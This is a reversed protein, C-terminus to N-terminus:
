APLQTDAPMWAHCPMPETHSVSIQQLPVNKCAILCCSVALQDSHPAAYLHQGVLSGHACVGLSSPCVEHALRRAQISYVVFGTGFAVAAYPLAQQVPPPLQLYIERSTQKVSKMIPNLVDVDVRVAFLVVHAQKIM